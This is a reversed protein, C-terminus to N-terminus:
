HTTSGSAKDLPDESQTSNAARVAVPATLSLGPLLTM